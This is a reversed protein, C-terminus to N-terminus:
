KEPSKSAERQEQKERNSKLTLCLWYHGPQLHVKLGVINSCISFSVFLPQEPM